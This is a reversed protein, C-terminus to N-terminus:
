CELCYLVRICGKNKDASVTCIQVQMVLKQGFFGEAEAWGAGEVRGGGVASASVRDTQVVALVLPVSVQVMSVWGAVSGDDESSM